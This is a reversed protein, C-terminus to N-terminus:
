AEYLCVVIDGAAPATTFTLTTTTKTLGTTVITGNKWVTMKSTALAPANTPLNFATITGDGKWAVMKPKGFSM